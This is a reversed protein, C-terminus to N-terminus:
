RSLSASAAEELQAFLSKLTRLRSYARARVDSSSGGSAHLGEFVAGDKMVEKANTLPELLAPEDTLLRIDRARDEMAQANMAMARGSDSNVWEGWDRSTWRDSSTAMILIEAASAWRTAAGVVDGVLERLRQDRDARRAAEAQVETGELLRDQLMELDLRTARETAGPQRVFVTGEEVLPRRGTPQYGKNLLAIRDGARPAEVTVVLVLKDDVNVSRPDWVVASNGAYRRIANHLEASDPVEQGHLAGPEVGILVYGVGDFASRAANVPRNALGLIARAITFSAETSTVDDFHSKWEISRSEDGPLAALVSRILATLQDPTRLARSSDINLPVM